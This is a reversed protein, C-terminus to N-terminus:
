IATDKNESKKVGVKGDVVNIEYGAEQLASDDYSKKAELQAVFAQNEKNNALLFKLCIISREKIFPNNEDIVCNSLILELGHLERVKEQVEFSDHTLLSIIEIIISKAQPFKHSESAVGEEKEIDVVKGRNKITVPKINEHICRLLNILPELVNYHILFEKTHHFKGLDTIVDLIILMTLVTLQDSKTANTTANKTNEVLKISKRTYAEFLEHIWSLLALLQFNDWNEKSTILLQALKLWDLFTSESQNNLWKGFSEHTIVDYLLAVLKVEYPGLTAEFNMKGFYGLLFAMINNQSSEIKLIHFLALNQKIDAHDGNSLATSLIIILPACFSQHDTDIFENLTEIVDKSERISNLNSGGLLILNAVAQYYVLMTKEYFEHDRPFNNKFKIASTLLHILVDSPPNEIALNRVVLLIGRLLRVLSVRQSPSVDYSYSASDLLILALILWVDAQSYSLRVAHDGNTQSVVFGLVKLADEFVPVTLGGAPDTLCARIAVLQANVTDRDMARYHLTTILHCLAIYPLSTRSCISRHRDPQTRSLVLYLTHRNVCFRPLLWGRISIYKVRPFLAVLADRGAGGPPSNELWVLTRTMAQRLRASASM